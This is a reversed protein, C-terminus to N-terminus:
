ARIRKYMTRLTWEIASRIEKVRDRPNTITIEKIGGAESQDVKYSIAKNANLLGRKVSEKDAEDMGSMVRRLFFAQFAPDDVVFHIEESPVIRVLDESIYMDGLKEGLQTKLPVVTKYEVPREAPPREAPAPLEVAKKFKILAGEVLKVITEWQELRGKLDKIQNLAENRIRTLKEVEERTLEEGM